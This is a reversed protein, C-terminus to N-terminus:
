RAMILQHTILQQVILLHRMVFSGLTRYKNERQFLSPGSPPPIQILFDETM